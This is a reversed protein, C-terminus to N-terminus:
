IHKTDTPKTWFDVAVSLLYPVKHVETETYVTFGLEKCVMRDPSGADKMGPEFIKYIWAHSPNICSEGCNTNVISYYKEEGEPCANCCPTDAASLAILIIVSLALLKM